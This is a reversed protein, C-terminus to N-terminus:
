VTPPVHLDSEQCVHSVFRVVDGRQAAEKAEEYWRCVSSAIVAGLPVSQPARSGGAGTASSAASVSSVPAKFSPTAALYGRAAHPLLALDTCIPQLHDVHEHM